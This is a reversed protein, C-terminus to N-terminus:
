EKAIVSYLLQKAKRQCQRYINNPLSFGYDVSQTESAIVIIIPQSQWAESAIVIIIPQSQWTM